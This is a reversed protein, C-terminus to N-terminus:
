LYYTTINTICVSCNIQTSRFVDFESGDFGLSGLKALAKITEDMGVKENNNADAWHFFDTCNDFVDQVDPDLQRYTINSLNFCDFWFRDNEKM